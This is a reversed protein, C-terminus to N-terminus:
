YSISTDTHCIGCFKSKSFLSLKSHEGQEEAPKYIHPVHLPKDEQQVGLGLGMDMDKRYYYINFYHYLIHIYIHPIHLPKDEQQVGLGLGMDM